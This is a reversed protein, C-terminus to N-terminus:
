NDVTDVHEHILVTSTLCIYEKDSFKAPVEYGFSYGINSLKIKKFVLFATSGNDHWPLLDLCPLWPAAPKKYRLPEACRQSCNSVQFYLGSSYPEMELLDKRIQNGIRLMELVLTLCFMDVSWLLGHAVKMAPMWEFVQQALEFAWVSAFRHNGVGMDRRVVSAEECCGANSYGVFGLFWAARVCLILNKRGVPSAPHETLGLNPVRPVLMSACRPSTSHSTAVDILPRKVIPDIMVLMNVTGNGHVGTAGNWENRM